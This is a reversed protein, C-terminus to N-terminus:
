PYTTRLRSCNLTIRQHTEQTSPSLLYLLLPPRSFPLHLNSQSNNNPQLSFTLCTGLPSSPLSSAPVTSLLESPPYLYLHLHQPHKIPDIFTSRSDWERINSLKVIHLSEQKFVSDSNNFFFFAGHVSVYVGAHPKYKKGECSQTDAIIRTKM